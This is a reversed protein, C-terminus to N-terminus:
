NEPFMIGADSAAPATVVPHGPTSPGSPWAPAMSSGSPLDSAPPPTQSREYQQQVAEVYDNVPQQAPTGMVINKVMWRNIRRRGAATQMEVRFRDMYLIEGFYKRNGSVEVVDRRNTLNIRQVDGKTGLGKFEILEGTVRYIKTRVVRGNYFHIVDGWSLPLSAALIALGMLGAAAAQLRSLKFM